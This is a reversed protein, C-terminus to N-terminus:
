ETDETAGPEDRELPRWEPRPRGRHPDWQWRETYPPRSNFGFIVRGEPGARGLVDPRVMRSLDVEPRLWSRRWPTMVAYRPRAGGHASAGHWTAINFLV